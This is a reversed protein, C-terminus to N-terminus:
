LWLGVDVQAKHRLLIFVHLCFGHRKSSLIKIQNLPHAFGVRFLSCVVEACSRTSSITRSVTITLSMHLGGSPSLELHSQAAKKM